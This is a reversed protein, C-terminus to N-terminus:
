KLAAKIAAVQAKDYSKETDSIVIIGEDDWFVKKGLSEVLARLPIFTRDNYTKAPVDLTSQVGDINIINSGLVM